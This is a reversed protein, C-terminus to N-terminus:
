QGSSSIDTIPSLSSLGEHALLQAWLETLTFTNDEELTLLSHIADYWWGQQFYLEVKEMPTMTTLQALLVPSLAEPDLSINGEVYDIATNHPGGCDVTFNWRYVLGRELELDEPLPIPLLGTQAPVQWQRDVLLAEAGNQWTKLTFSVPYTIGQDYPFYVYIVPSEVGVRGEYSKPILATLPVDGSAGCGNRSGGLVTRPPNGTRRGSQGVDTPPQWRVPKPKVRTNKEGALLPNQPLLLAGLLGLFLFFRIVSINIPKQTM